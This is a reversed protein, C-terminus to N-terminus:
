GDLLEQFVDFVLKPTFKPDEALLELAISSMLSGASRAKSKLFPFADIALQELKHDDLLFYRQDIELSFEGLYESRTVITSAPAGIIKEVVTNAHKQLASIPLNSFAAFTTDRALGISERDNPFVRCIYAALILPDLMVNELGDRELYGVVKIRDTPKNEGDWDILGFVSINGRTSLDSVLNRVVACGAHMETGAGGVIGTGIFELSRESGLKSKVHRYLTDYVKADAQSEVFIQRRGEFDLAITPVGQTLVNLAASKSMKHLGLQGAHMAFVSEEPALAVTTPSHTTAIVKIGCKGVINREIIRILGKAMSPHLPADIEDLLLLKPAEVTQRDDNTYHVCLAFAMIIKEGSSLKSFAVVDGTRSNTLVPIYDSFDFLSPSDISFGLNAEAMIANLVDWPAPGFKAEVQDQPVYVAEKDGRIAALERLNNEVILNRYSVFLRAFENQFLTISGVSPSKLKEVDAKTVKFIPKGTEISARAVLKSIQPNGALVSAKLEEIQQYIAQPKSVGMEAVNELTLSFMDFKTRAERPVRMGDLVNNIQQLVHNASHEIQDLEGKRQTQIQQSSVLQADPLELNSWTYSSIQRAQFKDCAIAGGQIAELLHSKGVGNVGTILVFDPLNDIDKFNKISLYPRIFSLKM